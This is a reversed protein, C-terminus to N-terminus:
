TFFPSIIWAQLLLNSTRYPSTLSDFLSSSPLCVCCENMRARYLPGRSSLKGALIFIFVHCYGVATKRYIKSDFFVSLCVIERYLSCLKGTM